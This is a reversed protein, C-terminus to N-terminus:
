SVGSPSAASSISRRYLTRMEMVSEASLLRVTVAVKASRVSSSTSRMTQAAVSAWHETFDPLTVTLGARQRRYSWMFRKLGEAGVCGLHLM